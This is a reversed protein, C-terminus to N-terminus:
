TRTLGYAYATKTPGDLDVWSALPSADDRFVELVDYCRAAMATTFPEQKSGLGKDRYRFSFEVVAPSRAHSGQQHWLILACKARLAESVQFDVGELVTQDAIFDCVRLLPVSGDYADGLQTKFPKYFRRIDKLTRFETEADVGTVKGSLSHLSLFPADRTAKIDEEFKTKGGTKCGSVFFRDRHRRKLTLELPGGSASQRQRFVFSSHRLRRDKTDFFQVTVQKDDRHPAFSGQVAPGDTEELITNGIARVFVSRFHEAAALVEQHDGAFRNARLMLKYERSTVPRSKRAM